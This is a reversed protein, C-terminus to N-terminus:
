PVLFNMLISISFGLFGILGLGIAAVKSVTKFESATPKKLLLWVRKCKTLFSLTKHKINEM